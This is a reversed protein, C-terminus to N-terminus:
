ITNVHFTRHPNTFSEPVFAQGALHFIYNPRLVDIANRVFEYDLIDQGDRLNFGHVEFGESLLHDVLHGGVFGKSGTILAIKAM